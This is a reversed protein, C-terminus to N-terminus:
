VPQLSAYKRLEEDELLKKWAPSCLGLLVDVDGGHAPLIICLGDFTCKPLRVAAPLGLGFDLELLPFKSWNTLAVDPGLFSNFAPKVLSKDGASQVYELASRVYANTIRGAAEHVSMAVAGLPGETLKSVPLKLYPFFNVNGFYGSPLPPVFRDRANCAFGCATNADAALGRARTMARWLLATLADNTSVWQSGEVDELRLSANAQAKLVELNAKAFRIYDATTEPMVFAAPADVTAPPPTALEYEIHPFCPTKGEPKLLERAFCPRLTISRKTSLESWAFLLNFAATGDGVFHHLAFGVAVGDALKSVYAQMLPDGTTPMIVPTNLGDPISKNTYGAAAIERLKISSADQVVFHAGSTPAAIKYNGM